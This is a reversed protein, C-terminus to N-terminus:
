CAAKFKEGGIFQWGPIANMVVIGLEDCADLFHPSQPYHSLRVYDFGAEKILRADRRQAAAPVAYGVRPYEQHRNTGRLRLRRGNLTFGGSRSFAMRRIGFRQSRTDVPTGDSTTLTITADHLAPSDIQWLAPQPITVEITFQSEAGAALAVVASKGRAVVIEQHRIEVEGILSADQAGSNRLHTAISVTASAESAHLTRIFVGGSAVCSAGVDDTIHLPPYCRLSVDRYLGGYWCFDLDAYPKGPPVDPNDRNDISLTLEHARGDRLAETLDIEFPLFGGAHRGYERGDILIVTSHMAAGVHLTCPGGQEAETFTISRQYECVGFWHERGDLDAVFPNHPLEVKTWAGGKGGANLQRFNWDGDLPIIRTM